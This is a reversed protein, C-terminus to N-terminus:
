AGGPTAVVVALLVGAFPQREVAHARYARGRSPIELGCLAARRDFRLRLAHFPTAADLLLAKWAAEKLTWLSTLDHGRRGEAREQRDLFHRASEPPVMGRLELDVGVHIGAPVAAAVAHSGRHSVSVRVPGSGRPLRVEPAQGDRHEIHISALPVGAACAAAMRAAVRAGIRADPGSVLALVPCGPLSADLRDLTVQM